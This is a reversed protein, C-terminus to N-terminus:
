KAATLRLKDIKGNPLKPLEECITVYKPVLFEELHKACHQLVSSGSLAVGNAPVVFAHIAEGLVQDVVGTVAAEAIEPMSCLVDEIERPSVKEGRSKFMEDKRGLYYLYGEGDIRFLDGTHLVKEGPLQGPKLVKESEEQLNWYGKMVHSGRVVLEGDLIYVESNPIARGVSTPRIDIQEPPLYSVRKCETLGYMSFIKVGPLMARLKALHNVPLVAATTTIYRLSPFEWKSLDMQLLMALLTPVIPLGTVKKQLLIEIMEYPYVFSRELVLTGGVKFMMLVQYLGYDFSLPLVNLVIDEPTNELYTTISKAASLMNLHTLMVGKPKGTSGSTYILAALDIDICQSGPRHSPLLANPTPPVIEPVPAGGQWKDSDTILAKAGCDNLIYTLKEGKTAPNVVVFVAGAKLSGFIATVTSISNDLYIVVRDFRRVGAAMLAHAQRNAQSEVERYTFRQGGCILAVKDPLRDASSELFAQLM